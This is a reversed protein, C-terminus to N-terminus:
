AFSDHQFRALYALQFYANTVSGLNRRKDGVSDLIFPLCAIHDLHAHTIFVHDIATLAALSLTASGSGADSLVDDDRLLSTTRLAPGGIGGSCGLIQVRM